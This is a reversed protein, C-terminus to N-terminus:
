EILGHDLAYRVLEATTSLDLKEMLRSKHTSVTKHSIALEAAIDNNGRGQTLLRLVQQERVTLSEHSPRITVVSAQFAIQEALSPEIFRGGAAIKRVAALLTAPDNDKTMYGCAGARLAQAAVEANDHMSLVLIPLQPFRAHVQLLLDVGHTGPLNMDFLLIDAPTKRLLEMLDKGNAAEGAVMMDKPVEFLRKLGERMLHHDEVLVIRIM